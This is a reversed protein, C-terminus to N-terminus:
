LFAAYCRAKRESVPIIGSDAIAKERSRELDRMADDLFRNLWQRGIPGDATNVTKELRHFARRLAMNEAELEVRTMSAKAM